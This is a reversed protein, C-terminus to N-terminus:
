GGLRIGDTIPLELYQAAQYMAYRKDDSHVAEIIAEAIKELYEESGEIAYTVSAMNAM